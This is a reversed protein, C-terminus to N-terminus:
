SKRNNGPWISCIQMVNLTVLQRKSGNQRKIGMGNWHLMPSNEKTERPGADSIAARKWHRWDMVEKTEVKLLVFSFWDLTWARNSGAITKSINDIRELCSQGFKCLTCPWLIANRLCSRLSVEEEQATKRRQKRELTRRFPLPLSSSYRPRDSHVSSRRPVGNQVRCTGAQQALFYCLTLSNQPAYESYSRTRVTWRHCCQAPQVAVSSLFSVAKNTASLMPYSARLLSLVLLLLAIYSSM